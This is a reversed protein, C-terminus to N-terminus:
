EYVGKPAKHWMKYWTSRKNWAEVNAQKEQEYYEEVQARNNLTSRPTKHHYQFSNCEPCSVGFWVYEVDTRAPMPVLFDKREFKWTTNCSPCTFERNWILERITLPRLGKQIIEPM